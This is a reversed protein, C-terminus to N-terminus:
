SFDVDISSSESREEDLGNRMLWGDFIARGEREKSWISTPGM